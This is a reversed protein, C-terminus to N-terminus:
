NICLDHRSKLSNWSQEDICSTRLRNPSASRALNMEVFRQLDEGHILEETNM